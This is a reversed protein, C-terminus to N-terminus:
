ACWLHLFHVSWRVGGWKGGKQLKYVHFNLKPQLMHSLLTIRNPVIMNLVQHSGFNPCMPFLLLCFLNFDRPIPTFKDNQILLFRICLSWGFLFVLWGVLGGGRAGDGVCKVVDSQVTALLWHSLFAMHGMSYSSIVWKFRYTQHTTDAVQCRVLDPQM